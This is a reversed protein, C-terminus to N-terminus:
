ESVTLQRRRWLSIRRAEVSFPVAWGVRRHRTDMYAHILYAHILMPSDHILRMLNVGKVDMLYM